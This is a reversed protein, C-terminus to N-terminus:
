VLVNEAVATLSPVLECVLGPADDRDPQSVPSVPELATLPQRSDPSRIESHQPHSCPLEGHRCRHGLVQALPNDARDRLATGGPLRRLAELHAGRGSHLQHLPHALGAAGGRALNATVATREKLRMGISQPLHNLALLADRQALDLHPESLWPNLHLGEWGNRSHEIAKSQRM